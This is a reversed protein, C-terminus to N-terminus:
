REVRWELVPFDGASNNISTLNFDFEGIYGGNVRSIGCGGIFVGSSFGFHFIM